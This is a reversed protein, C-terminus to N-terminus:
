DTISELRLNDFRFTRGRYWSFAEVGVSIPADADLGRHTKEGILQWDSAGQYKVWFAFRNPGVRGIALQAPVGTCELDYPTAESPLAGDDEIRLAQKTFDWRLRFGRADNRMPNEAARPGPQAADTSIALFVTRQDDDPSDPDAVWDVVWRMGVPLGLESPKMYCCVTNNGGPELELRGATIRAQGLTSGETMYGQGVVFRDLVASEDFTEDILIHGRAFQAFGTFDAPLDNPMPMNAEVLTPRDARALLRDAQRIDIHEHGHRYEATGSFVYSAIQDQGVHMGLQAGRSSIQRAGVDVQFTGSDSPIECLIKGTAVSLGNSRTLAIEAPALVTVVAGGPYVLEAVGRTLRYTGTTLGADSDALVDPRLGWTPTSRPSLVVGSDAAETDHSPTGPNVGHDVVQPVTDDKRDTTFWVTLIALLAVGAAVMLRSFTKSEPAGLQERQRARMAAQRRRQRKEQSERERVLDTADVLRAHSSSAELAVLEELWADPDSEDELGLVQEDDHESLLDDVEVAGRCQDRMAVDFRVAQIFAKALVPDRTLRDSFQAMSQADMTRDLYADIHPDHKTM